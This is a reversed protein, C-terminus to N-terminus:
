RQLKKILEIHKNYGADLEKQVANKIKSYLDDLYKKTRNTAILQASNVDDTNKLAEELYDDYTSIINSKCYSPENWTWLYQAIMKATETISEDKIKRVIYKKM